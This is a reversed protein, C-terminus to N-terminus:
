RFLAAVGDAEDDRLSVVASDTSRGLAELVEFAASRSVSNRSVKPRSFWVVGWGRVPKTRRVVVGPQRVVERSGSEAVCVWRGPQLRRLIAEPMEYAHIRGGPLTSQAEARAAPKERKYAKKSASTWEEREAGPTIVLLQDLQDPLEASHAPPPWGKRDDAPAIKALREIEARTLPRTKFDEIWRRLNRRVVPDGTEVVAEYLERSSRASANTSGVFTSRPLVVVKAHLGQISHIEVGRAHLARLGEPRTSGAKVTVDSADCILLDGERLPLVAAADKGIYSVAAVVRGNSKNLAEKIAAWPAGQGYHAMEM